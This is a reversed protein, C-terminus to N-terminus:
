FMGGAGSDMMEWFDVADDGEAGSDGHGDGGYDDEAAAAPAFLSVGQPEYRQQPQAQQGGAGSSSKLKIMLGQAQASRPRTRSALAANTPSSTNSPGASSTSHAPSSATSGAARGGTQPSNIASGGEGEGEGEGQSALMQRHYNSFSARPADPLVLALPLPPVVVGGGQSAAPADDDEAARRTGERDNGFLPLAAPLTAAQVDRRLAAEEADDDSRSRRFPVDSSRREHTPLSPRDTHSDAEAAAAALQQQTRFAFAAEAAATIPTLAGEETSHERRAAESQEDLGEGGETEGDPGSGSRTPTASLPTVDEGTFLSPDPVVLAHERAASM